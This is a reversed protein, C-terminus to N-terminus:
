GLYQYVKAIVPISITDADSMGIETDENNYQEDNEWEISLKLRHTVHSQVDTLPIIGRIVGNNFTIPAGRNVESVSIIQFNDNSMQDLNLSIEYEIAVDTDSADITIYFDGSIGPAIKGSLVHTDSTYNIENITFATNVGNSITQSNVKIIWDSQQQNAIGTSQSYFVAYIGVMKYIVFLLVILSVIIFLKKVYKDKM